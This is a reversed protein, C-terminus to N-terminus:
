LFEEDDAYVRGFSDPKLTPIAGYMLLVARGAINNISNEKRKVVVM